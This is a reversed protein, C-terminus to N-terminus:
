TKFESTGVELELKCIFDVKMKLYPRLNLPGFMLFWRMIETSMGYLCNSTYKNEHLIYIPRKLSIKGRFKYKGLISM